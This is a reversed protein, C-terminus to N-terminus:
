PLRVLVGLWGQQQLAEILQFLILPFCFMLADTMTRLVMKPQALVEDPTHWQQLAPLWRPVQACYDKYSQGFKHELFAEEGAVVKRYYYVFAAVLLLLLTLRGSQLGIGLVGLFSFVYLPNRVVAYVGHTVVMENKKGGVFLSSFSRGLICITILLGGVINIAERLNTKDAIMPGTLFLLPLLLIIFFITNKRRAKLLRPAASSM